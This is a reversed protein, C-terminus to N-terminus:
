IKVRRTQAARQSPGTLEVITGALIRDVIRQDGLLTMLDAPTKNSTMLLPKGDRLDIIEKFATLQAETMGRVGVEDLVLLGTNRINNRTSDARRDRRLFEFDAVFLQCDEWIPEHIRAVHGNNNVERAPWMMYALATSCTKGCGSDGHIYMPWLNTRRTLEIM